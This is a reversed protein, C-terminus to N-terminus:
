ASGEPGRPRRSRPAGGRAPLERAREGVGARDRSDVLAAAPARCTVRDIWVALAFLAAGIAQPRLQVMVPLAVLWGVLALTAARPPSAGRARCAAAIAGVAVGVALGRLLDLAAWGGARSVLAFLVQAGWQQNLWPAGPVTYTFTDTRLVEGSSLMSDGARVQYALDLAQSRTWWTIAVAVTIALATWAVTRISSSTM